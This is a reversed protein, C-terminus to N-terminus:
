TRQDEIAVSKNIMSKILRAISVVVQDETSAIKCITRHDAHVSFQKENPLDLQASAKDVVQFSLNSGLAKPLM